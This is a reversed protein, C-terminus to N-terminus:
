QGNKLEMPTPIEIFNEEGCQEVMDEVTVTLGAGIEFKRNVFRAVLWEDANLLKFYYFLGDKFRCETM